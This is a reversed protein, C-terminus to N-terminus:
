NTKIHPIIYFAKLAIFKGWSVHDSESNEKMYKVFLEKLPIEVIKHIYVKTFPVIKNRITTLTSVFELNKQICPKDTVRLKTKQTTNTSEVSNDNWFKWIVQRTILDTLKRAAKMPKQLFRVQDYLGLQKLALTMVEVHDDEPLHYQKM